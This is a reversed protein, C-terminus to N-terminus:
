AMMEAITSRINRVFEKEANRDLYDPVKVPQAARLMVTGAHFRLSKKPLIRNAGIIALPAIPKGSRLAVAVAGRRFEGLSGDASRTGEPFIVASGGIRVAEAAQEISAMANRPDDRTVAIFPSLRLCLGFIPINELERKYMIAAGSPLTALLIPIDFLSSHNCVYVHATGDAYLELGESKVRIGCIALLLRSWCRAFPYFVHRGALAMATMVAISYLVTVIVIMAVQVFFFATRM